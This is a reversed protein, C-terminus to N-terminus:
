CGCAAARRALAPRDGARRLGPRRRGGARLGVAGVALAIALVAWGALHPALREVLVGLLAALMLGTVVALVEAGRETREDEHAVDDARGPHGRRECLDELRSRSYTRLAKTLTVSVLHLALVPVGVAVTWGLNIGDVASEGTGSESAPGAGVLGARRRPSRTRCAWVPGPDEGERRRM